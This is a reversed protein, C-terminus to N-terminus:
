SITVTVPDSAEGIEEGELVGRATYSIEGAKGPTTDIAPTRM